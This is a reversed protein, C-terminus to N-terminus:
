RDADLKELLQLEHECFLSCPKTDLIYLVWHKNTKAFKIDKIISVTGNKVSEYPSHVIMVKDGQKLM